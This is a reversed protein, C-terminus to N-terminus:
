KENVDKLCSMSSRVKPFLIPFALDYSFSGITATVATICIRVDTRMIISETSHHNYLQPLPSAADLAEPVLNLVNIGLPILTFYFLRRHASLKNKDPSMAASEKLALKTKVAIWIIVVTLAIKLAIFKVLSFIEIYRSIRAYKWRFTFDILYEKPDTFILAAAVMYIFNESVLFFCIGIGTFIRNIVNRMKTFESYKFPDTIM